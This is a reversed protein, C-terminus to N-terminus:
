FIGSVAAGWACLGTLAWTSLLLAALAGPRRRARIEVRMALGTGAALAALTADTFITYAPKGLEGARERRWTRLREARALADPDATDLLPAERRARRSRRRATARASASPPSPAGASRRPSGPAM